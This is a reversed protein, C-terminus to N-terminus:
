SHFHLFCFFYYKGLTFIPHAVMKTKRGDAAVQAAELCKALHLAEVARRMANENEEVLEGVTKVLLEESVPDLFKRSAIKEKQCEFRARGDQIPFETTLTLSSLVSIEESIELVHTSEFLDSDSIRHHLLFVGCTNGTGAPWFYASTVANPGCYLSAYLALLENCAIELRRINPTHKPRHLQSYPSYHTSNIRNFPSKIYHKGTEADISIEHPSPLQCILHTSTPFIKLLHSKSTEIESPPQTSLIRLVSKELM